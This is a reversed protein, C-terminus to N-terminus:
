VFRASNLFIITVTLNLSSDNSREDTTLIIGDYLLQCIYSVKIKISHFSSFRTSPQTIKFM